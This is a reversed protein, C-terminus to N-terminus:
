RRYWHCAPADLYQRGVPQADVEFPVSPATDPRLHASHWCMPSTCDSWPWVPILAARFLDGVALGMVDGLIILIISPPFSRGWHEPAASSVAPCSAATATGLMVPLSIVGMAVVSAGVVGTSTALLGGVLITSVALGGRMTGFLRAMSEAATRGAADEAARNGDPVFLLPVAMLVTNQMINYIRFPM